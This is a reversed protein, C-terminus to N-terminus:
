FDDFEEEFEDDEDDVIARPALFYLLSTNGLKTFDIEVKM